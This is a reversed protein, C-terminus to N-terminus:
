FSLSWVIWVVALPTMAGFIAALMILLMQEESSRGIRKM